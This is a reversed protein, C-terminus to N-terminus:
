RGGRVRTHIVVTNYTNLSSVSLVPTWTWRSPLCVSLCVSVARRPPCDPQAMSFGQRINLVETDEVGEVGEEVKGGGKKWFLGEEKM